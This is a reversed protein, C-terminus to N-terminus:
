FSATVMGGFIVADSHSNKTRITRDLVSSWSVSPAVSVHDAVSVPLSATLVVDTFATHDSGYNYANYDKSGLGVQASLELSAERGAVEPLPIGHGITLLGYFGDGRWFDYYVTLIPHLPAHYGLGVYAEATDGDEIHPYSYYLAGASLEFDGADVSYDLGYDLEYLDGAMGNYDTMDVNGWVSATVDKYTVWANPQLVPDESYTLGRSVYSSFFGLDAGYSLRGGGDEAHGEAREGFVGAKGARAPEEAEGAFAPSFSLLAMIGAVAAVIVCRM